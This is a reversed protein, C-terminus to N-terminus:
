GREVEVILKGDGAAITAVNWSDWWPALGGTKEDRTARPDTWGFALGDYVTELDPNDMEHNFAKVVLRDAAIRVDNTELLERLTMTGGM